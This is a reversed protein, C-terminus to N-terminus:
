LLRYLLLFCISEGFSSFKGEIRVKDNLNRAYLTPVPEPAKAAM